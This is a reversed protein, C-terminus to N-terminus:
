NAPSHTTHESEFYSRIGQYLGQAILRQYRSDALRKGEVPNDIFSIEALACPMHAGVLVFFPAKKVGLNKIGEYYRSLTSILSDNLFHALSISDDLKGTQILDSIMFDLDGAPGAATLNERAALKLSSKDNTNDLYYTEIGHANKLESANAHVSVFLDARQDNAIKTREALLVTVDTRRTLVTEARLRDRLLEELYLSVALVVDKELVGDAGIAGLEEGGHGPDIVIIPRRGALPGNFIQKSESVSRSEAEAAPSDGALDSAPEVKADAAIPPNSEETVSVKPQTKRPKSQSKESNAAATRQEIASGLRKRATAAKDGDPYTDVIEFFASKAGPEDKLDNRRLDGLALLADDALADGRYDRALREYFYVARTLGTRFSRKRYTREYLKGLLYMSQPINKSKPNKKIFEFLDSAAGEWNSLQSVEPDKELLKLVRSRAADFTVPAQPAALAATSSFTIFAVPTLMISALWFSTPIFFSSPRLGSRVVSTIRGLFLLLAYLVTPLLLSLSSFFPLSVVGCRESEPVPELTAAGSPNLQGPYSNM